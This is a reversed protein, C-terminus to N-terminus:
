QYGGCISCQWVPMRPGPQGLVDCVLRTRGSMVLHQRCDHNNNTTEGIFGDAYRDAQDATIAQQTALLAIHDM